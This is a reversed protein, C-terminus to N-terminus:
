LFKGILWFCSLMFGLLCVQLISLGIIIKGQKDAWYQGETDLWEKQEDPTCDRPQWIMGPQRASEQDSTYFKFEFQKSM